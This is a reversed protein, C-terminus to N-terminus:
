AYSGRVKFFSIFEPLKVYDSVVTSLSVSPYYYTANQSPLTSLNDVRGTHSFTFYKKYAFDISYFGSYVQM